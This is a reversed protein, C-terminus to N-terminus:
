GPKRATALFLAPGKAEPDPSLTRSRAESLGTGALMAVLADPDFGPWHQGLELRVDERDHALLDVLVIRGGPKLVRAAEALAAAPQPLYSLTLVCLAADFAGSELPLAELEAEHLEVNAFGLTRRRAAALMAESQDVGAVRRVHPALRAALQGTGCGLDAVHYEPPVLALLAEVAFAEGYFQRRLTDWTAAAGAFFHRSARRREELRRSLRLQDQRASAWRGAEERVVKWLQRAPADLDSRLRYLNSTGQRRSVLWGQDSLTKLHRSVTSQPLQLVECLELVGLEHREVLRLLRLRIPDALAEIREVLEAPAPTENM